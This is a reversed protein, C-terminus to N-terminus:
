LEKNIFDGALGLASFIGSMNYFISADIGICCIHQLFKIFHRRGIIWKKFKGWYATRNWFLLCALLNHNNNHIIGPIISHSCFRSLHWSEKQRRLQKDM